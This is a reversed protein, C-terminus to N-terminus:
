EVKDIKVKNGSFYILLHYKKGFPELKIVKKWDSEELNAFRAMVGIYITKKNLEFFDIFKFQGPLLVFDRHRIYNSKIAKEADEILQDHDASLFMSDDELEFVQLEFPTADGSVNPNVGDSAVMSYTVQTPQSNAGDGGFVSCGSLSLFFFVM